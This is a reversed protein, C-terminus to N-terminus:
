HGSTTPYKYAVAADFLTIQAVDRPMKYVFDHPLIPM